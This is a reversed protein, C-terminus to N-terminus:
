FEIFEFIHFVSRFDLKDYTDMDDVSELIKM